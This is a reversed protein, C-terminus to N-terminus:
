CGYTHTSLLLKAPLDTKDITIIVYPQAIMGLSMCNAGPQERTAYVWLEGNQNEIREIRIYYGSNPQDSDIIAFVQQKEFDVAPAPPSPVVTMHKKWFTVWNQENTFTHLMAKDQKAGSMTGNDIINFTILNSAPEPEVTPEPKVIATTENLQPEPQQTVPTNNDITAALENVPQDAWATFCLTSLLCASLWKKMMM